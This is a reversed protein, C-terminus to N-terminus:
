VHLRTEGTHTSGFGAVQVASQSGGPHLRQVVSHGGVQVMTVVQGGPWHLLLLAAHWISASQGPVPEHLLVRDAHVLLPCHGAM